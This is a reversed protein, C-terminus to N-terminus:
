TRVGLFLYVALLSFLLNPSWVAVLPPLAATEGLTSFFAYIGIFVIGLVVSLGIGYLAGQRGLRFAFPFAVLAMVLSIMPYAVKNHLQVRLEPVSQGSAELEAIYSELDEYDMQEPAKIESDFYEPTEPYDVLRASFRSYDTVEPGDFRRAWGDEFLWRGSAEDYTAQQAFLRGVLHHEEDFEFVQLRQLTEERPDYRLYNYVYRGQGFLWQRDARRFTRPNERARIVDKLGAVRSNSAPLVESQLYASLLVIAGAAAVAPVALRFLSVGLAKLATVENSRALLSFTILTTVLVLVPALDYFIQLSLFRYYAIVVSQPVQNKIVDEITESLDAIVYISLGSLAVLLFVFAFQRVVYRDLLNPFLLRPRPLRLVVDPAGPRDGRPAGGGAQRRSDLRAQRASRRAQLRRELSLFRSWLDHRIWRDFRSLLLSKDRNRRLLLAFGAVALVVNPLWMALWPEMKGFRAANEGNNLMIYYVLIVGISLAFGSAKGGRRNNFGLPLACLGFVLCAVPISFKKHREVRALNKLEDDAAPDRLTASLEALTQNRVKKVGSFSTHQVASFEDQLVREVRKNKSTQHAGPQGLDVEHTVADVLELVVRDGSEDVKLQGSEAITVQNKQTPLTQALFIGEWRDSGPAMEFVYLLTGEFEPYFVRPEVHRAVTETIIRTQLQVVATNGWPLAWVMLVTNVLTFFGSTLLIPRYLAMLSVGSSRMAILESDSALRGVAILIGFLLSMPITLVVINPLSYLLLEGVISADLGRRIILEASEFLFQILLIFTYVLFGLGLPGMIERVLYRDLLRPLM